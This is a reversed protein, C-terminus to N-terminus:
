VGETWRGEGAPGSAPMAFIGHPNCLEELKAVCQYKTLADAVNSSGSVKGVLLRGRQVCEQLWLLKVELHRMKGLGRTSVFSKAVSSDTFMQVITISTRVGMEDMATKLGLGRSAGDAM